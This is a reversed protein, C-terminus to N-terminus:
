AGRGAHNAKSSKRKKNREYQARREPSLDRFKGGYRAVRNGNRGKRWNFFRGQQVVEIRWTGDNIIPLDVSQAEAQIELTEAEHAVVPVPNAKPVPM